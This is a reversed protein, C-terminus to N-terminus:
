HLCCSKGQALRESRTIQRVQRESASPYRIHMHEHHLVENRNAGLDNRLWITQLDTMGLINEHPMYRPDIDVVTVGPIYSPYGAMNVFVYDRHRGLERAYPRFDRTEHTSNSVYEMIM